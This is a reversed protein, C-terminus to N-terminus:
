GRWPAGVRRRLGSNATVLDPVDDGNLDAVAVSRPVSGVDFKRDPYLSPSPVVPCGALGNNVGTLLETISIEEDGNPDFAPCEAVPAIGLGINVGLVLENVTCSGDDDCDGVCVSQAFAPCSFFYISVFM